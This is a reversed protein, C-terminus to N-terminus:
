NAKFSQAALFENTGTVLAIDTLTPIRAVPILGGADLECYGNAVGKLARRELTQKVPTGQADWYKIDSGSAVLWFASSDSSPDSKTELYRSATNLVDTKAFADSGGSKHTDKHAVAGSLGVGLSEITGNDYIIKWKKASSDFWVEAKGSAPTAPTSSGSLTNSEDGYFTQSPVNFKQARWGIFPM